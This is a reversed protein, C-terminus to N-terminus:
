GSSTCILLIAIICLAAGVIGLVTSIVKGDEEKSFAFVGMFMTSILVAIFCILVIPGTVTWPM